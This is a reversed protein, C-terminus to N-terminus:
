ATVEQVLRRRDVKGGDTFPLDRAVVVRPLAAPSLVPRLRDRVESLPPADAMALAVATGWEPDPLGVVALTREPWAERARQEVEALNVNVGGSIVVDDIRGHVQLTGDIWSGVDRTRLTRGAFADATREPDCHYGLAVMDGTISIRGDDALEIDVGPLPVGDYVCGGATESMGYTTVIPARERWWALDAPAMPMGGILLADFRALEDARDRLRHLHTPTLSLYNRIGPVPALPRDWEVEVVPMDSVVARAVVMLGAVYHGPLALHWAGPGGLRAHTASVASIVQDTSLCVGKPHGTSGSTAVMVATGPPPTGRAALELAAAREVSGRPLPLLPMGGALADTLAVALTPAGGDVPCFSTPM